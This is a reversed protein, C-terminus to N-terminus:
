ETEQETIASSLDTAIIAIPEKSVKVFDLPSDKAVSRSPIPSIGYGSVGLGLITMRNSM